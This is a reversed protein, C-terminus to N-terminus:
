IELGCLSPNLGLLQQMALDPGGQTWFCLFLLTTLDEYKPNMYKNFCNIEYDQGPRFDMSILLFIEISMMSKHDVQLYSKRCILAELHM